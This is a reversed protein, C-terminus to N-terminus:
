QKLTRVYNVIDWRDAISFNERLSPMVGFGNTIVLFINQDSLNQVEASTLDKPKPNFFGSLPGNGKAQPGHCMQCNLGFLFKGHDISATSPQPPQSAPQGAVLVPGQVPVAEAPAALRPGQDYAISPQNAMNTPFNIKLIDYFFLLSIVAFGTLALLFGGWFYGFRRSPVRPTLREQMVDVAGNSRFMQLVQDVQDQNVQTIIGIHGESIRKDYTEKTLVPFRNLILMGFFTAWMTGLMIWEFFVILSPPIPVIPQGGQRLPWMLWIGATLFAAIAAGILSGLLTILPLRTRIKPRNLVQHRFPVGTILDFDKDAFGM